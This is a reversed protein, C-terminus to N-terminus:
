IVSLKQIKIAFYLQNLIHKCFNYPDCNIKALLKFPSLKTVIIRWCAYPNTVPNRVGNSCSCNLVIILVFRMSVLLSVKRKHVLFNVIYIACFLGISAFLISISLLITPILFVFSLRSANVDDINASQSSYFQFNILIKKKADISVVSFWFQPLYINDLSQPWSDEMFEVDEIRKIFVNLQLKVQANIPM